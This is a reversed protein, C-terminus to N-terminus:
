ENRRGKADEEWDGRIVKYQQVARVILFIVLFVLLFPKADSKSIFETLVGYGALAVVLMTLMWIEKTLYLMKRQIEDSGIGMKAFLATARKLGHRLAEAPDKQNLFEDYVDDILQEYGKGLDRQTQCAIEERTTKGGMRPKKEENM